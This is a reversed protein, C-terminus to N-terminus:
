TKDSLLQLLGQQEPPRDAQGTGPSGPGHAKPVGPSTATEGAKLQLSLKEGTCLLCVFRTPSKGVTVWNGEWEFCRTQCVSCGVMSSEVTDERNICCLMM